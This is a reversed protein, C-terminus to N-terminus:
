SLLEIYLEGIPNIKTEDYFFYANGNNINIANYLKEYDDYLSPTKIFLDGNDTFCDGVKLCKFEEYHNRNDKIEKNM